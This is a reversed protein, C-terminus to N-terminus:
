KNASEKKAPAKPPAKEPVKTADYKKHIKITKCSQKVSGDKNKIAKGDKGVVDKCVEKTKPAEAYATTQYGVISWIVINLAILFKKM